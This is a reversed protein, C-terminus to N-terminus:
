QCVPLLRCIGLCWSVFKAFFFLDIKVIANNALFGVELQGGVSGTGNADCFLKILASLVKQGLTEPEKLLSALPILNINEAFKSQSPLIVVAFRGKQCKVHPCPLEKDPRCRDLGISLRSCNRNKQTVIISEVCRSVM